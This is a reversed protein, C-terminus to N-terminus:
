NESPTHLLAEFLTFLFFILLVSIVTPAFWKGLNDFKGSAILIIRYTLYSLLVSTFFKLFRMRRTAQTYHRKANRRTILIPYNFRHPYKNIITIAIYIVTAIAPLLFIIWKSGFGDAYGSFNFHVPISTPLKEYNFYLFGWTFVLVSWGSIEMLHDFATLQVKIKPKEQKM